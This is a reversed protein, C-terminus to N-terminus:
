TPSGSPAAPSPPSSSSPSDSGSTSTSTKCQDLGQAFLQAELARRRRLDSVNPWLRTMARIYGPILAFRESVMAARIQAMETFRPLTSNFGGTGRNYGLSLLVGKCDPGLLDWNPLAVEMRHEWKPLEREQFEQLAQAWTITVETRNNQVFLHARDGTIGVGEIMRNITDQDVIGTWDNVCENVTCYGLDYGVGVTPGSAGGPWDFHAETRDYYTEDGDEQAVIFQFVKDSIQM